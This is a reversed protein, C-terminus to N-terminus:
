DTRLAKRLEAPPPLIVSPEPPLVVEMKRLDTRTLTSQALHQQAEIFLPKNEFQQTPQPPILRQFREIREIERQAESRTLDQPPHVRSRIQAAYEKLQQPSFDEARQAAPPSIRQPSRTQVASNQQRKQRVPKTQLVRVPPEQEDTQTCRAVAQTKAPRAESPRSQPAAKYASSKSSVVPQVSM